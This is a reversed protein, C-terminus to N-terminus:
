IWSKMGIRNQQQVEEHTLIKQQKNSPCTLQLKSLTEIKWQTMIAFGTCLITVVFFQSLVLFYQYRLNYLNVVQLTVTSLYTDSKKGIKFPLDELNKLQQKTKINEESICACMEGNKQISFYM